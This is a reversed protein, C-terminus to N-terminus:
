LVSKHWVIPMGIYNYVCMLYPIMLTVWGDYMTIKGAIDGVALLDQTPHASISVVNDQLVDPGCPPCYVLTHPPQDAM